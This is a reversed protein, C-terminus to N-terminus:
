AAEPRFKKYPQVPYGTPVPLEGTIIRTDPKGVCIGRGAFWIMQDVTLKGTYNSDHRRYMFHHISTSEFRAGKRRMQDCWFLDDRFRSQFPVADEARVAITPGVVSLQHPSNARQRNFLFLWQDKYSVFHQQKGVVTARGSSLAGLAETSYEPGYWDDDDFFLVPGGGKARIAELAANRSAGSHRETSVVLLDPTVGQRACEGVADGSEVVLLQLKERQRSVNEVSWQLQQPRGLLVAAYSTM